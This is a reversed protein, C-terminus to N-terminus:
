GRQNESQNRGPMSHFGHTDAFSAQRNVGTNLLAAARMKKPHDKLSTVESGTSDKQISQEIQGLGMKHMPFLSQEM